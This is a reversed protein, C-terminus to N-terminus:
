KLLLKAKEQKQSYGSLEIFSDRICERLILIKQGVVKFAQKRVTIMACACKKELGHIDECWFLNAPCFRPHFGRGKSRPDTTSDALGRGGETHQKLRSNLRKRYFKIIRKHM